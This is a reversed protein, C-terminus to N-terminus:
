EVKKPGKVGFDQGFDNPSPSGAGSAGVGEPFVRVNRVGIVSPWFPEFGHELDHM